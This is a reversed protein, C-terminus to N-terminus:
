GRVPRASIVHGLQWPRPLRAHAQKILALRELLEDPMAATKRQRMDMHTSLSEYTAALYGETAHFM